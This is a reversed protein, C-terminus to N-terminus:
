WMKKEKRYLEVVKTLEVDGYGRYHFVITGYESDNSKRASYKIYVAGDGKGSVPSVDCEIATTNVSVYWSINPYTKVIVTFSGSADALIHEGEQTITLPGYTATQPDYKVNDPKVVPADCSMLMHLAVATFFM